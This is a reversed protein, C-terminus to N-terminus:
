LEFTETHVFTRAVRHRAFTRAKAVLDAPGCCYLTLAADGRGAARLMRPVDTVLDVRRRQVCAFPHADSDALRLQSGFVEGYVRPGITQPSPDRPIRLLDLDEVDGHDHLSPKAADHLLPVGLLGDPNTGAGAPRDDDDDVCEGHDGWVSAWKNRTADVLLEPSRLAWLVFVHSVTAGGQLRIARLMNLIPTVGIGGAVLVAVRTTGLPVQLAGFPGLWAVTTKAVFGSPDASAAAALNGTWTGPGMDKAIITAVRRPADFWAV